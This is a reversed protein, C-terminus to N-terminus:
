NLLKLMGGLEQRKSRSIPIQEGSVSVFGELLDVVDIKDLRVIYQRHTRMFDKQPLMEELKSLPTRAIFSGQETTFIESYNDFSSIYTITAIALKHFTGKKKIFLCEKSLFQNTVDQKEERKDQSKLYANEVSLELASRLSIKEIPKVLYGIMNSKKARNYHEYDGFSTIYLIPIDLHQIKEGLEIGMMDGKIEHDMLIIDPKRSHILELADKANDVPGIVNYGIDEILMALELSFSLNDEVILVDLKFSEM